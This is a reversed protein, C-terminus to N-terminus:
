RRRIGRWEDVPPPGGPPPRWITKDDSERSKVWWRVLVLGTAFGGIHAFYATGGAVDAGLTVYGYILNLVFYGGAVFWAPLVPLPGFVLWLICYPNFVTIPARPYLVMYAGLVGFIAGSAGILPVRSSPDVFYHGLSAAIGCFLYFGFYRARGLVDEVNDGFVYLFLLNGGLHLFDAHMFMGTLVTFGEGLPDATLRAPVLGYAPVVWAAGSTSLLLQWLFVAVNVLLLAQNVM